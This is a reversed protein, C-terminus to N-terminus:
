SGWSNGNWHLVIRGQVVPTAVTDWGCNSGTQLGFDCPVCPITRSWNEDMHIYVPPRKGVVKYILAPM